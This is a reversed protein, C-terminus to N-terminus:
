KWIPEKRWEDCLRSHHAIINRLVSIAEM